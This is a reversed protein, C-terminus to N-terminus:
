APSTTTRPEACPAAPEEQIRWVGLGARGGGPPGRRGTGAGAPSGTSSVGPSLLVTEGHVAAPPRPRCDQQMWGPQDDGPCHAFLSGDTARDVLDPAAAM